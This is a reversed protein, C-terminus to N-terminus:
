HSEIKLDNQEKRVEYGMSLLHEQRMKVVLFVGRLLSMIHNKQRAIRQRLTYNKSPVVQNVALILEPCHVPEVFQHKPIFM